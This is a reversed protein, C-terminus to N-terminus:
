TNRQFAPFAGNSQWSCEAPYIWVKSIPDWLFRVWSAGRTPKPHNKIIGWFWGSLPFILLAGFPFYLRALVIKEHAKATPELSVTRNEKFISSHWRNKGVFSHVFSPCMQWFQSDNQWHEPTFIGPFYTKFCWRKSSFTRVGGGNITINLPFMYLLVWRSSSPNPLALCVQNEADSKTIFRTKWM